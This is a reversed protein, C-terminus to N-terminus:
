QCSYDGNAGKSCMDPPEYKDWLAPLGKAKLYAPFEPSARLSKGAPSFLFVMFDVNDIGIRTREVEM